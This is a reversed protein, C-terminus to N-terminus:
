VAGEECHICGTHICNQSVYPAFRDPMRRTRQPYRHPMDEVINSSGNAACETAQLDDNSSDGNSSDACETVQLSDGIHGTATRSRLEQPNDNQVPEPLQETITKETMMSSSCPKLRDFHVVKRQSGQSKRIRYTVESLRKIVIFPGTWPKHFKKSNGRSVAMSRLWVLDGVEFPKGHVRADYLTKQRQQNVFGKERVINYAREIDKQMQRAYESHSMKNTPTTGFMLDAPLRAQRGFMLYFPTYGTTANVSSNYALCVRRLQKEWSSHNDKIVTSLMSLLTRNFREVLGDGQPHYPTTRTKRIQFLKCVEQVLESEFQRGQDSHLQEPVSFRCFMEDSIKNAVTIAEQNPIAYAEAWRTFYDMAVLVYQNGKDSKPLPGLIDVAVIQM